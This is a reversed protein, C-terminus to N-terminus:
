FLNRCGDGLNQILRDACEKSCIPTRMPVFWGGMPLWRPGTSRGSFQCDCEQCIPSTTIFRSLDEPLNSVDIKRRIIVNATLEKLSPFVLDISESAKNRTILPNNQVRLSDINMDQFSQPMIEILNNRLDLHVLEECRTIQDPINRIRNHSLNLSRLEVLDFLETPIEQIQNFSLDLETLSELKALQVPIHELGADALDLRSQHLHLQVYQDWSDDRWANM